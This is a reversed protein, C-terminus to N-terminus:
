NTAPNAPNTEPAPAGTTPTVKKNFDFNHDFCLYIQNRPSIDRNNARFYGLGFDTTENVYYYLSPQTGSFPGKGSYYDICFQLKPVIFKDYGLQLSSRGVTRTSVTGNVAPTNNSQFLNKSAAYAYGVHFRGIKAFNKAGLLYLYNPNAKSDGLLWGGAVVRIQSKDNNYLQTKLNGFIRKGFSVKGPAGFNFDFGAETRGAVGDKEPGFGYVLGSTTLVNQDLSTSQYTDADYHLTNKAYIDTSPFAGLGSPTAQALRPASAAFGITLLAAASLTLKNM